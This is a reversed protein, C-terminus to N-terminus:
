CLKNFQFICLPQSYHQLSDRKGDKSKIFDAMWKKDMCFRGVKNRPGLDAIGKHLLFILHCNEIILIFKKIFSLSLWVYFIIKIIKCM